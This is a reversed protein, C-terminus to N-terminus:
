SLYATGGFSSSFNIVLQNVSSYTVNGVVETGGSDIVKLGGPRYGLNHVITWENSAAGQTHKHAGSQPITLNLTQNPATGTISAAADTSSEGVGVTGISLTNSPGPLGPSNITLSDRGGESITLTDTKGETVVTATKTKTVIITDAM